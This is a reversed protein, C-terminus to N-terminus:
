KTVFYKYIFPYSYSYLTDEKIRIVGYLRHSGLESPTFDITAKSEEVPVTITKSIFFNQDSKGLFVVINKTTDSLILNLVAKQNFIVTDNGQLVVSRDTRKKKGEKDYEEYLFGQENQKWITRRRLMQNPYYEEMFGDLAGNVRQEKRILQDSSDFYLQTITSDNLQLREPSKHRTNCSITVWIIAVTIYSIKKQM